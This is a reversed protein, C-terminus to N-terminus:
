HAGSDRVCRVSYGQSKNRIYYYFSSQRHIIFRCKAQLPSNETSSWVFWNYGINVYGNNLRVGSPLASFGIDDTGYHQNHEEWRPHLNTDCNGGLQSDIQRCSKLKNGLGNVDNEENSWNYQTMLYDILQTWDTDSPVNWGAPCLGRQDNVAYWNYLKGYADVMEVDSNIGEVDDETLGGEHPYIAYAGETTNQWETNSLDTSIDDGNNYRAVRLNEAMWEQNGIIVTVYENGDIDTVGDGYITDPDGNDDSVTIYNMRVKTDAGHSNEVTLEVTYSGPNQYTHQPNQSTSTHGDGFNWQWSTPNNTSLDTFSVELPATGSTPTGSFDAVPANGTTQQTKFKYQEGYSTGASNTAYARVYYTTNPELNTISSAFYGLGNGDVTKKHNITPSPSTHWCVGRATVNAGRDNTVIGGSMASNSTIQEVALTGLAPRNAPCDSFNRFGYVIAIASAVIDVPNVMTIVGELPQDFLLEKAMRISGLTRNRAFKRYSGPIGISESGSEGMSFAAMFEAGVGASLSGGVQFFFGQKGNEVLTIYGPCPLLNNPFNFDGYAEKNTGVGISLDLGLLAILGVNINYSNGQTIGAFKNVGSESGHYDIGTIFEYIGTFGVNASMAAGVGAGIAQEYACLTYTYIQRDLNVYDYVYSIGGGGSASLSTAIIAGVSGTGGVEIQASKSYGIGFCEDADNSKLSNLNAYTTDLTTKYDDLSLDPVSLITLSLSDLAIFISDLYQEYGEEKRLDILQEELMDLFIDPMMDEAKDLIETEKETNADPDTDPSVNNEENEKNCTSIFFSLLLLVTITSLRKKM